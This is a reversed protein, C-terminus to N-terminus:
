VSFRTRSGIGVRQIKEEQILKKLYRRITRVSRNTAIALDEVSSKGEKILEFITNELDDASNKKGSIKLREVVTEIAKWMDPINVDAIKQLFTGIRKKIEKRKKLENELEEVDPHKAANAEHKQIESDWYDLYEIWNESKFIKKASEEVIFLTKKDWNEVSMLQTVEYQCALSRLYADSVILVAFDQNRITNMFETFSGWAGVNRDWHVDAFDDLRKVLETVLSASGHNYSIFVSPKDTM